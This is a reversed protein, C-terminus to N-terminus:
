PSHWFPGQPDRPRRCRDSRDPVPRWHDARGRRPRRAATAIRGAVGDASGTEALEILFAGDSLEDLLRDAVALAVRTKGTEGAGVVTVLPCWCRAAAHRSAILPSRWRDAWRRQSRRHPRVSPSSSPTGETSIEVGDYAAWVERLLRHHTFLVEGYGEGLRELLATSGEIDTFVFTVTGTPRAAM